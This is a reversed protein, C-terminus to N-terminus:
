MQDDLEVVSEFVLQNLSVLDREACNFPNIEGVPSAVYGLRIDAVTNIGPQVYAPDVWQTDAAPDMAPDASAADMGPDEIGALANMAADQYNESLAAAPLMCLVMLVALMRKLPQMRLM